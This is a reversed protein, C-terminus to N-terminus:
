VVSKRDACVDEDDVNKAGLQACLLKARSTAYPANAGNPENKLYMCFYNLAEKPKGWQQYEAGINSLLTANPVITYAQLYIDIAAGHDGLQSRAIAKKVLEGAVQRDKDTPSKPDAAAPGALLACAM